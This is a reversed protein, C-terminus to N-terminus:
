FKIFFKMFIVKWEVGYKCIYKGKSGRELRIDYCFVFRIM